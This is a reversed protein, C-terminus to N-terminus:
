LINNCNLIYKKLEKGAMSLIKRSETNETPPPIVCSRFSYILVSAFFSCFCAIFTNSYAHQIRQPFVDSKRM